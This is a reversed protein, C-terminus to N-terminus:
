NGRERTVRTASRQKRSGYFGTKGKSGKPPQPPGNHINEAQDPAVGVLRKGQLTNLFALVSVEAQRHTLKYERAIDGAIQSVTHKGDCMEWVMSSLEDSMEIKRETPIQFIKGILKDWARFPHYELTVVVLDTEPHRLWKVKPNRVPRLGLVQQANPRKGGDFFPIANKAKDLLNRFM